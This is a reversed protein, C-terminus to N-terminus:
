KEKEAYEKNWFDHLECDECESVTNVSRNHDIINCADDAVSDIDYGFVEKFKEANTM